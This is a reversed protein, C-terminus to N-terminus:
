ITGTLLHFTSVVHAFERVWILRKRAGYIGRQGIMHLNQLEFNNSIKHSLNKDLHPWKWYYFTDFICDKFKNLTKWFFFLEVLKTGKILEISKALPWFHMFIIESRFSKLRSWHANSFFWLVEKKLTFKSWLSLNKVVYTM